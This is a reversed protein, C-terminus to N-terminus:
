LEEPKIFRQRVFVAANHLGKKELDKAAEELQENIVDVLGKKMRMSVFGLDIFHSSWKELFARANKYSKQKAVAEGLAKNFKVLDGM